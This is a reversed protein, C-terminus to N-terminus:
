GSQTNKNNTLPALPFDSFLKEEEYWTPRFRELLEYFRPTHNKELLHVLEHIIIYELCALPKEAPQLNIWIRRKAISCSGWRTKLNKIKFENAHLGTLQECKLVLTPLVKKLESRYWETLLKNRTELSTGAPVVM